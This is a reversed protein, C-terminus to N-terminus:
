RNSREIGPLDRRLRQLCRSALIWSLQCSVRSTRGTPSDDHLRVGDTSSTSRRRLALVPRYVEAEALCRPGKGFHRRHAACSALVVRIALAYLPRLFEATQLWWGDMTQRSIRLGQRKFIGELRHLPLHDAGKSVIVQAMLGPGALGGPIAQAPKNAVVVNQESLTLGSEPLQEKRVYKKRVHVIVLLTSPQWDFQESREPPLEVLNEAGGMAAMEAESLDHVVEERRLKDPLRGRGHKDRKKSVGSAAPSALTSPATETKSPQPDFLVGQQPSFKESTSGYIRKLLLDMHHEQRELRANAKQLEELLQVVLAKLVAPDDPLLAPDPQLMADTSMGMLIGYATVRNGFGFTKESLSLEGQGRLAKTAERQGPRHGVAGIVIGASVEISRTQIM